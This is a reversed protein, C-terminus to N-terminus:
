TIPWQSPKAATHLYWREEWHLLVLIDGGRTVVQYYDKRGAAASHSESFSSRNASEAIAYARERGMGPGVRELDAVAEWWWDGELRWHLQVEAIRSWRGDRVMALPQGDEALRVEVPEPPPGSVGAADRISGDGFRVRITHLTHGLPDPTLANGNGIPIQRVGLHQPELPTLSVTLGTVGASYHIGELLGVARDYLKQKDNSAPRLYGWCTLASGDEQEVEVVLNGAALGAGALEASLQGILLEAHAILAPLYELQWDLTVRASLPQQEYEPILPTSDIGRALRHLREGERGLTRSLAGAPLEAMQGVTVLGLRTLLQHADESLPLAATGLPALFDAEEGRAVVQGEGLGALEAAVSATFRNAALGVKALLGANEQIEACLREVLQADPGYLGELGSAEICAEGPSVTQRLPSFAELLRLLSRHAGTYRREDVSLVVAGPSFQEAQRLPMGERVGDRQAAPSCAYVEDGDEARHGVVVPRRRLAPDALIEVQIPFDPVLVHAYKM